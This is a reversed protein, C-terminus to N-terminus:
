SPGRLTVRWFPSGNMDSLQLEATGDPMFRMQVVPGYQAGYGPIPVQYHVVGFKAIEAFWKVIFDPIQAPELVPRLKLLVAASLEEIDVETLHTM